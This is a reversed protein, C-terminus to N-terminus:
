FSRWTERSLFFGHGSKNRCTLGTFASACRLGDSGRWTKGYALVLAVSEGAVPGPIVSGGPCTSAGTQARGTTRLFVQNSPSCGPAAPPAPKLGSKIACGVLTRTYSCVINGSPTKFYGNGVPPATTGPTVQRWPGATFRSGNWRWIRAKEGGTPCCRPDGPRSISKTERIATGAASIDAGNRQQMVLQWTKGTLRFVVWGEFPVSTGGSALSVVMVDSGPGMFAGCLVKYVPNAIFRAEGLKLEKVVATAEALSCRGSVASASPLAVPRLAADTYSPEKANRLLVTAKGGGWPVRVVDVDEPPYNAHIDTDGIVFRGDGTLAYPGVLPEIRRFGGRIPDIAYAQWTDQGSQGGLLRRGDASWAVPTLGGVFQSEPRFRTLTRYGTGDPQVVAIQDGDSFAIATPGWLPSRAGARIARSKRSALDIVRLMGNVLKANAFQVYALSRSDPSFSVQRGFLGRGVTTAAGSVATIVVLRRADVCALKSSDPAWAVAWCSIRLTRKPGGGASAFIELRENIPGVPGEDFETVAVVTGDPSVFSRFGTGLVRRGSGNGRAIVITPGVASATLTGAPAARLSGSGPLGSAGSAGAAAIAAAALGIWLRKPLAHSM